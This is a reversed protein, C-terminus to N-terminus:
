LVVQGILNACCVFFAVHINSQTRSQVCVLVQVNRIYWSSVYMMRVEEYTEEDECGDADAFEDGDPSSPDDNVSDHRKTTGGSKLFKKM